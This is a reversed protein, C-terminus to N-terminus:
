TRLKTPIHNKKPDPGVYLKTTLNTLSERLLELLTKLEKILNTMNFLPPIMGQNQTLNNTPKVTNAYTTTALSNEIFKRVEPYSINKTHKVELIRKEKRWLECEKSNASHDQKCNACKPPQQCDIHNGTEGFNECIPPRTCKEEHHGFKQCNHCRM